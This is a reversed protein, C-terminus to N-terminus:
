FSTVAGDDDDDDDARCGQTPKPRRLCIDGAIEIRSM